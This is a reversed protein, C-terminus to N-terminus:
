DQGRKIFADRGGEIAPNRPEGVPVSSSRALADTLLFAPLMAKAKDRWECTRPYEKARFSWLIAVGEALLCELESKLTDSKNLRSMLDNIQAGLSCDPADEGVKRPSLRTAGQGGTVTRDMAYIESLTPAESGAPQEQTAAANSIFIQKGDVFYNITKGDEAISKTVIFQNVGLKSDQPAQPSPTALAHNVAAAFRDWDGAVMLRSNGIRGDLYVVVGSSDACGALEYGSIRATGAPAAAELAAALEDACETQASVQGRRFLNKIENLNSVGCEARQRWKAVLGEGRAVLNETM